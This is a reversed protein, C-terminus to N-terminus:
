SSADTLIKVKLRLLEPRSEEIVAAHGTAQRLAEVIQSATLQANLHLLIRSDGEQYREVSAGAVQEMATLAKQIDMLGQFGPVSALVLTTGEGGAPFGAEPKAVPAPAPEAVRELLDGMLRSLGELHSVLRDLSTALGGLQQGLLHERERAEELYTEIRQATAEVAARTAIMEDRAQQLGAQEALGRTLESLASTLNAAAKASPSDNGPPQSQTLDGRM